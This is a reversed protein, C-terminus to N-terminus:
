KKASNETPMRSRGRELGLIELQGVWEVVAAAPSSSCLPPMEAPLSHSPCLGLSPSASHDVPRDGAQDFRVENLKVANEAQLSETTGCLNLMESFLSLHCKTFKWLCFHMQNFKRIKNDVRGKDWIKSGDCILVFDGVCLQCKTWSFCWVPRFSSWRWMTRLSTPLLTILTTTTPLAFYIPWINHLGYQIVHTEDFWHWKFLTQVNFEFGIWSPFTVSALLFVVIYQLGFNGQVTYCDAIVALFKWKGCTGLECPSAPLWNLREFLGFFNVSFTRNWCAKSVNISMWFQTSSKVVCFDFKLM